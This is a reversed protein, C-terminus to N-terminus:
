WLSFWASELKANEKIDEYDKRTYNRSRRRETNLTERSIKCGNPM